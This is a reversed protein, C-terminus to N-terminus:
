LYKANPLMKQIVQSFRTMEVIVHVLKSPLIKRSHKAHPINWGKGNLETPPCRAVRPRKTAFFLIVKQPVGAVKTLNRRSFRLCLDSRFKCVRSSKEHFISLCPSFVIFNEHRFHVSKKPRLPAFAHLDSISRTLLKGILTQCITEEM